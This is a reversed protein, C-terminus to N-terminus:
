DSFVTFSQGQAELVGRAPQNTPGMPAPQDEFVRLGVSSCRASRPYLQEVEETCSADSATRALPASFMSAVNDMAAATNVTPSAGAGGEDEDVQGDANDQFVTLKIPGEKPKQQAPQDEFVTLGGGSVAPQHDVLDTHDAADLMAYESAKAAREPQDLHQRLGERQKAVRTSKPPCAASQCEDENFISFTTPLVSPKTRQAITCETWVSAAAANEKHRQTHPALQDWPANCERSVVTSRGAAGDLKADEFIQLNGAITHQGRSSSEQRRSNPHQGKTPRSMPRRGSAASKSGIRQLKREKGHGAHQGRSRTSSSPMSGREANKAAGDTKERKAMRRQFAAARGQLDEVPQAGKRLGEEFVREAAQYNLSTEYM